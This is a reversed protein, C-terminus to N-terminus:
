DANGMADNISERAFGSGLLARTVADILETATHDTGDIEVRCRAGTVRGDLGLHAVQIEVYSRPEPESM